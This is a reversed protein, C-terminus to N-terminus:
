KFSVSDLYSLFTEQDFSDAESYIQIFWFGEETKYMGGLYKFVIDEVTADYVIYLYDEDARTMVESDLENYYVIMDAYEELTLSDGDELISPDEFLGIIAIEMDALAFDFGEFDSNGSQDSLTKPAEITLKDLDFTKLDDGTIKSLASCGTLISIVLVFLILTKIKKM